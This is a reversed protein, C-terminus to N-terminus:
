SFSLKDNIEKNVALYLIGDIGSKLNLCMYNEQM